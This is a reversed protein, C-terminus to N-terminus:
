NFISSTIIIYNTNSNDVATTVHARSKLDLTLNEKQYMKQSGNMDWWLAQLNNREEYKSELM